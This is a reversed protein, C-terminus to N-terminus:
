LELEKLLARVRRCKPYDCDEFEGYHDCHHRFNLHEVVKGLREVLDLLYPIDSLIIQGTRNPFPNGARARIESLKIQNSM